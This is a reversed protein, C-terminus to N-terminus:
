QIRLVVMVTNPAKDPALFAMGPTRRRFHVLGEEQVNKTLLVYYKYVHLLNKHVYLILFSYSVCIPASFSVKAILACEM